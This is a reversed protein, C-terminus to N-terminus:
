KTTLLNKNVEMFKPGIGKVNMLEEVSAFHGVKDRYQIIKQAKKLGIGNLEEALIEASATNINILIPEGGLTVRANEAHLSLSASAIFFALAVLWSKVIQM